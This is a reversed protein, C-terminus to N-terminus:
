LVFSIVGNDGLGAFVYLLQDIRFADPIEKGQELVGVDIWQYYM